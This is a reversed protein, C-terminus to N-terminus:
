FMNLSLDTIQLNLIYLCHQFGLYPNENLSELSDNIKNNNCTAVFHHLVSVLFVVTLYHSARKGLYHGDYEFAEM